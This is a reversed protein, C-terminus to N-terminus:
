RWGPPNKNVPMASQYGCMALVERAEQIKIDAFIPDMLDRSTLENLVDQASYIKGHRKDGTTMMVYQTALEESSMTTLIKRVNRNPLTSM